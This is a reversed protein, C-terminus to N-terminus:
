TIRRKRTKKKSKIKTKKKTKIEIKRNEKQIEFYGLM